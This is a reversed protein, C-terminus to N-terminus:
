LAHRRWYRRGLKLPELDYLKEQSIVKNFPLGRNARQTITRAPIGYQRVLDIRKYKRGEIEVWANHRVNAMQELQTAWRVNGPAYHGNVDIRDVSHERSPRPGLELEFENFSKFLCRVGRGGYNQFNPHNPRNCRQLINWWVQKLLKREALSNDRRLRPAVEQLAICFGIM